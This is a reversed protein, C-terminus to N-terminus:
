PIIDLKTRGKDWVECHEGAVYRLSYINLINSFQCSKISNVFVCKLSYINGHIYLVIDLYATGTKSPLLMQASVKIVAHLHM